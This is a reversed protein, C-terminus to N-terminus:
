TEELIGLGNALRLCGAVADDDSVGSVACSRCVHAAIVELIAVSLLPPSRMGRLAKGVVLEILHNAAGQAQHKCLM